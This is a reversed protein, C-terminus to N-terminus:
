LPFSQLLALSWRGTVVTIWTSSEAPRGLGFFDFDAGAEGDPM